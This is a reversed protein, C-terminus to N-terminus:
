PWRHRSPYDEANMGENKLGFVTEADILHVGAAALQPPTYGNSIAWASVSHAQGYLLVTGNTQWNLLEM